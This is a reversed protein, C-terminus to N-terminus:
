IIKVRLSFYAYLIHMFVFCLDRAAECQVSIAVIAVLRGSGRGSGTRIGHAGM